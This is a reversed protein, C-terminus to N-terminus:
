FATASTDTGCSSAYKATFAARRTRSIKPSYRMWLKVNVGTASPYKERNSPTARCEPSNAGNDTRWVRRITQVTTVLNCSADDTSTDPQAHLPTDSM